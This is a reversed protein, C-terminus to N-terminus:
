GRRGPSLLTWEGSIIFTFLLIGSQTELASETLFSLAFLLLAFLLFQGDHRVAAIGPLLLMTVLLALGAVGFKELSEFYQNHMNYGSYGKDTKGDGTYLRYRQMRSALRTHYENGPLGNTWINNRSFIEFGMRWLTLRLTLGDFHYGSFDSRQAVDAYASLHMDLYRARIPNHTCALLLFASIVMTALGAKKLPAHVSKFFPVALLFLGALIMVKSSLLMLNIFLFLVMPIRFRFPIPLKLIVAGMSVLIYLSLYIASLGTPAAYAHYFFVNANHSVHYTHIAVGICTAAAAVTGSLLARLCRRWFQESNGLALFLVPLAAMCAKREVDSGADNAGGTRLSAIVHLLFYALFLWVAPRRIIYLVDPGSTIAFLGAGILCFTALRVMNLWPLFCAALIV